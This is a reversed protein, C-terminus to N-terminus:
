DIHGVSIESGTTLARAIVVDGKRFEFPKATLAPSSSKLKVKTQGRKIEVVWSGAGIALEIPSDTEHTVRFVCSPLGPNFAYCGEIGSVDGPAEASRVPTSGGVLLSTAIIMM